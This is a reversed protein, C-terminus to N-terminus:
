DANVDWKSVPTLIPSFNFGEPMTEGKADQDYFGFRTQTQCYDYMMFTESSKTQDDKDM